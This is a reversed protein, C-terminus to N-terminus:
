AGQDSGCRAIGATVNLALAVRRTRPCARRGPRPALKCRWRSYRSEPLATARKQSRNGSVSSTASGIADLQDGDLRARPSGVAM